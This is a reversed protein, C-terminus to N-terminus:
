NGIAMWCFPVDPTFANQRIFKASSTTINSTVAFRNRDSSLNQQADTVVTGVVVPPSTFGASSFDVTATSNQGEFCEVGYAIKPMDGFGYKDAVIKCIKDVQGTTVYTNPRPDDSFMKDSRKTIKEVTYWSRLQCEIDGGSLKCCGSLVM